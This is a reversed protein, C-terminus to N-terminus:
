VRNYVPGAWKEIRLLLEEVEFPKVLYDDAEMEAAHLRLNHSASFAIVPIRATRPDDRLHRRIQVGDIEPMTIDLLIAAPQMRRALALAEVSTGRIVVYGAESLVDDIVGLISPDDDVVLIRPTGGEMVEQAPREATRADFVYGQRRLTRIYGDPREPRALKQRLRRVYVDLMGGDGDYTEGWILDILASRRVPRGPSLMLVELLATERQTLRATWSAEDSVERAQPRLMLGGARVAPLRGPKGHATEDGLVVCLRAKLDRTDAPMSIVDLVGLAFAQRRLPPTVDHALLITPVHYGARHLGALTHAVAEAPGEAVLVLLAINRTHIAPDLADATEAEIADCGIDALLFRVLDRTPGDGGVLLTVPAIHPTGGAVTMGVM